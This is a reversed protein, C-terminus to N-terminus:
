GFEGWRGPEPEVTRAFLYTAVLFLFVLVWEFERTIMAVLFFFLIVLEFKTKPTM